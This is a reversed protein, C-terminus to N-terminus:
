ASGELRCVIASDSALADSEVLDHGRYPLRRSGSNRASGEEQLQSVGPPGLRSLDSELSCLTSRKLGPRRFESTSKFWLVLVSLFRFGEMWKLPIPPVAMTPWPNLVALPILEKYKKTSELVELNGAADPGLWLSRASSVVAYDVGEERLMEIIKETRSEAFPYKASYKGIHIHSDIIM